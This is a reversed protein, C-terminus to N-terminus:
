QRMCNITWRCKARSIASNVASYTDLNKAEARRVQKRISNVDGILDSYEGGYSKEVTRRATGTSWSIVCMFLVFLSGLIIVFWLLFRNVKAEMEPTLQSM